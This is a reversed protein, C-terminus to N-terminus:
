RKKRVCQEIAGSGATEKCTKQVNGNIDSGNNGCSDPLLGAECTGGLVM